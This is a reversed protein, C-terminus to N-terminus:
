QCYICPNYLICGLFTQFLLNMWENKMWKWENQSVVISFDEFQKCWLVIGEAPVGKTSLWSLESAQALNANAM